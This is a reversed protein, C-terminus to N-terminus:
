SIEQALKPKPESIKIKTKSQSNIENQFNQKLKHNLKPKFKLIKRRIETQNENSFRNSKKTNLTFFNQVCSVFFLFKSNQKFIEESLKGVFFFFTQFTEDAASFFDALQLSFTLWSFSFTILFWFLFAVLFQVSIRKLSVQEGLNSRTFQFYFVSWSLLFLRFKARIRAFILFCINTLTHHYKPTIRVYKAVSKYAPILFPKALAGKRDVDPPPAVQKLSNSSKM